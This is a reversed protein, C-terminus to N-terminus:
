TYKGSERGQSYSADLRVTVFSIFYTIVLPMSSYLQSTDAHDLAM